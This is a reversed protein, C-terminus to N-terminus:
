EKSAIPLAFLPVASSDDPEAVDTGIGANLREANLREANLREPFASWEYENENENELDILRLIRSRTSSVPRQGFARVGSRRVGGRNARSKNYHSRRDADATSLRPAPQPL